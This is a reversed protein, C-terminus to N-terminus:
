DAGPPRQSDGSQLWEDFAPGDITTSATALLAGNRIDRSAKGPLTLALVHLRRTRTEALRRALDVIDHVQPGALEVTDGPRESALRALHVGVTRAAVPQSRMHPVVAFSAIRFQNLLQAPFEHFQSTRLVTADYYPYGRVRDIGLISLVIIHQVGQATAAARLRRSTTTFFDEAVSRRMSLANVADVIVHAGALARDLGAGTYVDVGTSRSIVQVSHGRERLAEVAYRGATGTGGVVAVQM